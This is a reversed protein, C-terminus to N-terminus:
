VCRSTYLLCSKYLPQGPDLRLWHWNAEADAEAERKYLPQGPDLRLWHWGAEANAERKALGVSDDNEQAAQQVITTNVFLLGNSTSNQFPLMAVDSDSGLDLYGIVAEAPIDTSNLNENSATTDIPAAFSTSALAVTSLLASLKM